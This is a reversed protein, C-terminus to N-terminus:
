LEEVQDMIVIQMPIVMSAEKDGPTTQDKAEKAKGDSKPGNILSSLADPPAKHHNLVKKPKPKVEETAVQKTPQAKKSKMVVAEEIDQSLIEDDSSAAAKAYTSSCISHNQLNFTELIL